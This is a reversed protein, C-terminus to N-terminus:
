GDPYVGRQTAARQSRQDAAIRGIYDPGMENGFSEGTLRARGAFVNPLDSIRGVQRRMPFVLATHLALKGDGGKFEVELASISSM